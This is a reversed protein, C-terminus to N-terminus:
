VAGDVVVTAGSMYSNRDSVLFAALEAVEQPKGLRGLACHRLFEEKRHAPLNDSVGEELLGPALCNVRIGYRAVEKALSETFGKLAAKATAYHVPAQLMKVGALSGINLVHGRKQRVMGRLVAQTALFAGKVHTDMMRDWDEEEMLALPVVQGVGANNVLIDIPAGADAEVDKCLVRLGAKDLVSTAFARGRGVALIQELTVAADSHSRSYNFAVYAGERAFTVAIARGLGRSGGTVLAVRGDLLGM